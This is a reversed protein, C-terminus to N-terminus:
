KMTLKSVLRSNESLHNIGWATLNEPIVELGGGPGTHEVAM